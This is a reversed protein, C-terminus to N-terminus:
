LVHHQLPQLDARLSPPFNHRRHSLIINRRSTLLDLTLIHSASIILLYICISSSFPSTRYWHNYTRSGSTSSSATASSHPAPAVRRIQYLNPMQSASPLPSCCRSFHCSSCRVTNIDHHKHLRDGVSSSSSCVTYKILPAIYKNFCSINYSSALVRSLRGRRM